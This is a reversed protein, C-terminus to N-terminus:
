WGTEAEGRRLGGPSQAAESDQIVLSGGSGGGRDLLRRDGGPMTLLGAIVLAVREAISALAAVQWSAVALVLFGGLCSARPNALQIARPLEPSALKHRAGELSLQGLQESNVRAAM